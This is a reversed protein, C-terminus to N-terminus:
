QVRELYKKLWEPLEMAPSTAMELESGPPPGGAGSPPPGIMAEVNPAPRRGGGYTDGVPPEPERPIGGGMRDRDQTNDRTGEPRPPPEGIMGQVDREIPRAFPNSTGAFAQSLDPRELSGMKGLQEGLMQQFPERAARDEDFYQMAKDLMEQSAGRDKMYQILSFATVGAKLLDGWKITGLPTTIGGSGIGWNGPDSDLPGGKFKDVGPGSQYGLSTGGLATMTGAGSPTRGAGFGLGGAPNRRAYEEATIWEGTKPDYHKGDPM